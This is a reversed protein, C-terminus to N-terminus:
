IEHKNWDFSITFIQKSQTNKTMSLINLTKIGLFTHYSNNNFNGVRTIITGHFGPIYFPRSKAPRSMDWGTVGPVPPVPFNNSFNAPCFPIPCPCCFLKKHPVPRSLSVFQFLLRSPVSFIAIPM